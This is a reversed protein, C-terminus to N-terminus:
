NMQIGGMQGTKSVNTQKQKGGNRDMIAVQLVSKCANSKMEQPALDQRERSAWARLGARGHGVPDQASGAQQSVHCARSGGPNM